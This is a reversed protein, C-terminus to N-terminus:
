PELPRAPRPIVTIESPQIVNKLVGDISEVGMTGRLRLWTDPPYRDSSRWQVPLGTPTADALCCRVMLRALQPPGEAPQFVFGTISLPAGEHLSPDPQTRLLRVWETLTRQEPPLVFSLQPAEQITSPRSSALDSFSPEPPLALVAVAMVVSVLWGKPLPQLVLRHDSRRRLVLWTQVLGFVMLVAGGVGVIPHYVARLLLDLRGSVTSWVMVWGWLVLQLPLRLALWRRRPSMPM